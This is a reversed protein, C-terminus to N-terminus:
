STSDSTTACPWSRKDSPTFKKKCWRGLCGNKRLSQVFSYAVFVMQWHRLIPEIGRVQYQGAGLDSKAERYFVEIWNRLSYLCVVTEDRLSTDNTTLFRKEEDREPHVPDNTVVIVRRKGPWKKIKVDLRACHTERETGDPSILRVPRFDQPKLLALAEELRHENRAVDGPMRHYIRMSPRIEVVYKIGREELTAVFHTASGYLSDGVVHRFGIGRKVADDVLTLALNIKTRYEPNDKGGEFCVDPMFPLVGIPWHREQDAYHSTVFVQGNEVKGRQGIYQRKVGETADGKKPVGSDDIILAGDPRPRTHPNALLMGIRRDNLAEADWPSECLFHHLSQYHQSLVRESIREVNKRHTESLLGLVYARLGQRQNPRSFLDDFSEFFPECLRNPENVIFDMAIRLNPVIM